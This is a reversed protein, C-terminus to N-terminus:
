NFLLLQKCNVVTEPTYQDRTLVQLLPVREFITVSLVQLTTYLSAEIKLRKKMIAVLLYVSVAIWIQAKVANESTGYFTKIRLNQKIWKFFLEVQWRNRYLEAITMSPLSFNNTLFVLTKDTKADYYKVRRMMEPYGKHQYFGTLMISQDCILGTSRDIPHSYIRRYKLNSKARTVFFASSQSITYLRTFDLYGRDMVYFAGAELPLIDLVNVDHLKGDSIHIFTPINGRLDLLTHLKVAGKNKRFKAWPFMSLCLDITTADLAFVTNELELAFNDGVYMKRATQILVHALDAYIRWDRVKNAHALNNRSVSSRIGMHYLKSKQAQLCAEIDRLSERYTLQAFAMCLYQDLCTFEKVKFDGQYRDVCKHFVHLPLHEMLQSFIIKGTYM